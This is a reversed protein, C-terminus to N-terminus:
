SRSLGPLLSSLPGALMRTLTGVLSRCNDKKGDWNKNLYLNSFARSILPAQQWAMSKIEPMTKIYIKRTAQDPSIGLSRLMVERKCHCHDNDCSFFKSAYFQRAECTCQRHTGYLGRKGAPALEQLCAAQRKKLEWYLWWTM